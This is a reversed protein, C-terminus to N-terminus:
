AKTMQVLLGYKNIATGATVDVLLVHGATLTGSLTRTALQVYDATGSNVRLVGSSRSPLTGLTDYGTGSKVNVVLTAGPNGYLSVGLQLLDYSDTFPGSIHSVPLYASTGTDISIFHRKAATAMKAATVASDTIQNTGIATTAIEAQAVAENYDLHEFRRQGYVAPNGSM